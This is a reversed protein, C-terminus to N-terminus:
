LRRAIIAAARRLTALDRASLGDLLGAVVRV